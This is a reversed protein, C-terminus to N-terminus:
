EVEAREAGRDRELAEVRELIETSAPRGLVRDCVEKAATIDALAQQVKTLLARQRELGGGYTDRPDEAPATLAKLTGKLRDFLAM